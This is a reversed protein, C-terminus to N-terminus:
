AWGDDWRDLPGTPATGSHRAGERRAVHALAEEFERLRKEGWDRLDRNGWYVEKDQIREEACFGAAGIVVINLDRQSLTDETAADLGEITHYTTYWLRVVADEQPEQSENIFLVHGPWLEFDAYDPRRASAAPDYDVWVREVDLYPLSSIDVERGAATLTVTGLARHPHVASYRFLCWRIAEDIDDQPYAEARRVYARLDMQAQFRFNRGMEDAYNRLQAYVDKHATVHESLEVARSHAAFHCAGTVITGEDDLPLTTAEAGDLDEITHMATYLIRVTDGAQPIQRDDIYLVAQADLSPGPWVEFQRFNPPFQPDDTDYDWWVKDIRLLGDLAPIAFERGDESLIVSTLRQDPTYKSFQELSTRIAEDLADTSWRENSADQLRAEVRDRITQLNASSKSVIMPETLGSASELQTRIRDRLIDLTTTM